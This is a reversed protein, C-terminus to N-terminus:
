GTTRMGAAICNITLLLQMMDEDTAQGSQMKRLLEIQIRNMQGLSHRRMEAAQASRRIGQGLADTETIKLVANVTRDYEQKVAGFIRDRADADQCLQAYQEAIDMDVELLSVKLSLIMNNFFHWQSFMMQLLALHHLDNAANELATGAGFWAPLVHRNQTWSFVWPIARLDEIGQTQKRKAPRSGINLKAIADIPSAQRFYDVFGPTEVLQRYAGYASDSLREMEAIFEAPAPSPDFENELSAAMVTGTLIKLNFLATDPNAYKTSISEGQETLKIRGRLTKAPLGFIHRHTPKGGRSLSGGMGHFFKLRVGHRDAVQTMEAQAKFTEWQSTITGGDKNSDSYGVMVQQQVGLREYTKRVVEKTLLSELIEPARRLDGITELLPVISFRCAGDVFGGVEKFLLYAMLLDSPSRTMSIIYSGISDNDLNIQAWTVVRFTNLVEATKDSYTENESILSGGAALREELWTQRQEENKELYSGQGAAQSLEEITNELVESNERIDLRALHFGFTKVRFEMPRIWADATSQSGHQELSRRIISIENLLDSSDSYAYDPLIEEFNPFALASRRAKLRARIAALKIRYPEYPNRSAIADFDPLERADKELSEALERSIEVEHRSYSLVRILGTLEGIYLDIIYTAHRLLTQRTVEATVFPNGDRDGGRWSSFHLVSPIDFREGPFRRKLARYLRSLVVPILPYFSEKFYFLGNEVEDSVRPKDLFIHGTQLLIEIQSRIREAAENKESVTRSQENFIKLDNYIRRHAELVSVRKSETPHATLVPQIEFGSLLKRIAEPDCHGALKHVIWRFTWMPLEEPDERTDSQEEMDRRLKAACAEEAINLLQFFISLVQTLKEPNSIDQLHEPHSRAFAEALGSEGNRKASVLDADPSAELVELFIGTLFDAQRKLEESDWYTILQFESKASDIM